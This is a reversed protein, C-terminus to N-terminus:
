ADANIMRKNHTDQLKRFMYKNVRNISDKYRDVKIHEPSIPDNYGSILIMNLSISLILVFLLYKALTKM